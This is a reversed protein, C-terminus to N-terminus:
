YVVVPSEQAAVGMNSDSIFQYNVMDVGLRVSPMM